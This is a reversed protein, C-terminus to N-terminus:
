DCVLGAEGQKGWSFLLIALCYDTHQYNKCETTGANKNFVCCFYM